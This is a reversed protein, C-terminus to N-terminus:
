LAQDSHAVIRAWRVLYTLGSAITTVAVVVGLLLDIPGIEARGQVFRRLQVAQRDDPQQLLDLM